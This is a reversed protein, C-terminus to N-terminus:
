RLLHVDAEHPRIAGPLLLLRLHHFMTRLIRMKSKGTERGLLVSPVEEVHLRRGLARVLIEATSVFDTRNPLIGPLVERRYARFGCTFTRIGAASRGFRLRYALSAGKSLLSRHFPVRDKGGEGHWPSATVVDAGVMVRAVLKLVDEIPYALDADYTVVVDGQAHCLGERIAAGIGRNQLWGLVRVDYPRGERAALLGVRTRDVSGDDVCLVELSDSPSALSALRDLAAFLPTIAAEENFCPIIISVLM